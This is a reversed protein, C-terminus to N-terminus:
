RTLLNTKIFAALSRGIDDKREQVINTHPIPLGLPHRFLATVAFWDALAGVMAAEAFARVYGLWPYQGIYISAIVFIVGMLVLLGLAVKRMRELGCKHSHSKEITQRDVVLGLNPWFYQEPEPTEVKAIEAHPMNRFQPFDEYPMLGQWKGNRLWIGDKSTNVEVTSTSSLLELNM